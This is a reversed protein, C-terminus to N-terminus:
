LYQILEGLMRATAGWVLEGGVWLGQSSIKAEGVQVMVPKLGENVLTEVPLMLLQAVESSNVRFDYPLQVTGVWPHILVDGRTLLPQLQGCVVIDEARIGIEEQTERLATELLHKDGSEWFGGPFSVQGKHTEVLETRKTLIIQEQRSDRDYGLVILVSSVDPGGPPLQTPMMLNKLRSRTTLDM